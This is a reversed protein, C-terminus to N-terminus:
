HSLTLTALYDLANFFEQRNLPKILYADIKLSQAEKNSQEEVDGTFIGIVQEPTIERIKKSMELGNMNPMHMDTLVINPSFKKYLELGELGDKALYVEKVLHNLATNILNRTFKDDEVYMITLDKLMM